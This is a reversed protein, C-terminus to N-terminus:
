ARLVANMFAEAALSMREPTGGARARISLGHMTSVMLLAASEPTLAANLQDSHKEFVRRFFKDAGDISNALKAKITESECCEESLLCAILCGPPTDNELVVEGIDAFFASLGDKLNGCESLKKLAPVLMKERYHDVVQLFLAEKDGFAAYLSPKNIGLADTLDDVSTGRYGNRWFVLMANHLATESDFQRPRGRSM